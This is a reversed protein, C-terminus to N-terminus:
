EPAPPGRRVLVHALLPRLGAGLPPRAAPGATPLPARWAHVRVVLTARTWWSWWLAEARAIGAAVVALGVLHALAMSPSPTMAHGHVYCTLLHVAVQALGLVALTTAFGLRRKGLWGVVASTLAVVPALAVVPLSGGGQAAHAAVAGVVVWSGVLLARGSRAVPSGPALM